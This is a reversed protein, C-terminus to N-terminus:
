LRLETDLVGSGGRETDNLEDVVIPDCIRIRELILQAIKDGRRLEVTKDSTNLLSVHVEGRYDLINDGHSKIRPNKLKM